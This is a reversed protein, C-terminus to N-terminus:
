KPESRGDQGDRRPEYWPGRRTNFYRRGLFIAGPLLRLVDTVTHSRATRGSTVVPQKVIVFAGLRKLRWSLDVDEGAYLTQDFGGVTEFAQRTCFIFSGAALRGAWQLCLWLWLLATAYLPVRGDFRAKAGGGVAGSRIARVAARLVAESVDTDADVFVLLDGLAHRAGANRASAIQRYNVMVLRAGHRVAVEATADASADDVVIIEYPEDQARAATQLAALTRGILRAEDHAPIVISIM